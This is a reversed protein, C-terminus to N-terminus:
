HRKFNQGYFFRITTGNMAYYRLSSLSELCTTVTKVEGSFTKQRSDLAVDPKNDIKFEEPKSISDPNNFKLIPFKLLLLGQM